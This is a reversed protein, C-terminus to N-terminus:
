AKPRNMEDLVKKKGKLLIQWQYKRLFKRFEPDEYRPKKGLWSSLWGWLIALSGIVFPKQNIRFLASALM